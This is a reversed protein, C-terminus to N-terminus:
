LLDEICAGLTAGSFGDELTPRTDADVTCRQGLALYRPAEM